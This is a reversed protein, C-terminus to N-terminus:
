PMVFASRLAKRVLIDDKRSRLGVFGMKMLSDRVLILIACLM